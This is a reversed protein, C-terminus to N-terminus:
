GTPTRCFVAPALPLAQPPPVALPFLLPLRPSGRNSHPKGMVLFNNPGSEPIVLHERFGLPLSPFPPGSVFPSSTSSVECAPLIAPHLSCLGTSRVHRQGSLDLGPLSGPSGPLHRLSQLAGASHLVLDPQPSPLASPGTAGLLGPFAAKVPGIRSQGNPRVWNRHNWTGKNSLLVHSHSCGPLLWPSDTLLNPCLGPFCARLLCSEPHARLLPLARGM